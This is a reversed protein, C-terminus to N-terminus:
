GDIRRWMEEDDIAITPDATLEDSRRQAERIVDAPLSVSEGSAAIEDWLQIVLKLKETNPLNHIDSNEM